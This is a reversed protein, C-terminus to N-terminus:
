MPKCGDDPGGGKGRRPRAMQRKSAGHIGMRKLEELRHIARRNGKQAAKIYWTRAESVDPQTVGIGCEYYYGVAYEAKALGSDAARRAWLYAELDNQPIYPEAGTLYWGSLALEADPDRKEAARTYWGISRRPDIPCGLTGYEYAQGLRVQSPVYGLKGAKIYLERSYREDPILGPIGGVEHCLALEHLSHPCEPTANEAGRKLWTIGERPAPTVGLLGKILIVGLKYMSPVNSQAAAKRYFQVARAADRRTGVGVEYCVATRYNAEAHQAKSAQQYYSFAKSDDREVGYIGQSYVTGLFFQSEAAINTRHVTIGSGALKKVWKLGEATLQQYRKNRLKANQEQEAMGQAHELVYKAFELQAAPDHSRKISARYAELSAVTPPPLKAAPGSPMARASPLNAIPAIGVASSSGSSPSGRDALQAPVALPLSNNSDTWSQMGAPHQFTAANEPGAFGDGSSSQSYTSAANHQGYVAGGYPGGPGPSGPVSRVNANPVPYVGQPYSYPSTNSYPSMSSNNSSGGHHQQPAGGHTSYHQRDATDFGDDQYEQSGHVPVPSGNSTSSGSHLASSPGSGVVRSQLRQAAATDIRPHAVHPSMNRPAGNRLNSVAAAPAPAPSFAPSTSTDPSPSQLTSNTTSTPISPSTTATAPGYKDSHRIRAMQTATSPFLSSDMDIGMSGDDNDYEDELEQERKRLADSSLMKHPPAHTRHVPPESKPPAPGQRQLKQATPAGTQNGQANSRISMRQFDDTLSSPALTSNAAETSDVSTTAFSSSNIGSDAPVPPAHQKSHQQQQANWRQSHMDLAQESGGENSDWQPNNLQQQRHQDSGPASRPASPAITSDYGDSQDSQPPVPQLQQQYAHLPRPQPSPQFQFDRPAAASASNGYRQISGPIPPQQQGGQAQNNYPPPIGGQQHPSPHPYEPPHSPRQPYRPQQQQQYQQQYQHYPSPQQPPYNPQQNGGGNAGPM